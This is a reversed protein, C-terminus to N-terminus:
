ERVLHIARFRSPDRIIVADARPLPLLRIAEVRAMLPDDMSCAAVASSALLLGGILWSRM